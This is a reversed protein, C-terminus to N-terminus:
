VPKELTAWKPVETIRPAETGEGVAVPPVEPDVDIGYGARPRRSPQGSPQERQAGAQYLSEVEYRLQDIQVGPQGPSIQDDGALTM